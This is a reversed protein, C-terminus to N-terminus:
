DSADAKENVTVELICGATGPDKPEFRTLEADPVLSDLIGRLVGRHLTCVLAPNERVIDAYPCTTVRYCARDGEDSAEPEFGLAELADGIVERACHGPFPVLHAALETGMESGAREVDHLREPTAPVSRALARALIWGTHPLDPGAIARPTLHWRAKPRGVRGRVNEREVIGARELRKLQVRVGNHHLGLLEAIEATSLSAESARIVALLRAPTPQERDTNEM